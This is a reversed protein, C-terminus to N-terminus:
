VMCGGACWSGEWVATGLFFGRVVLSLGPHFSCLSLLVSFLFEGIRGM